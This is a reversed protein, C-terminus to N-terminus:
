EEAVSDILEEIKRIYEPLAFREISIACERMLKEREQNILTFFAETAEEDTEIIKGCREDNSLIRAGGVDTAIFPVGLAVSELLAISFGESKSLLLVVGAQKVIPMPNDQYGLFEVSDSLGEKEVTEVLVQQLNGQGLYYLKVKRKKRVQKLVSLLRQPQKNDDLRGVFLMSDKELKIQTEEEASKRVKDIDIGNYICEIKDIHRPFLEELSRRTIDSIAVIKQVKEFAEDQLRRERDLKKLDSVEGHIWAINKTGKPLLFTPIQYNFSIYVDFDGKIYRDILLEPTHYVQYGKKQNDATPVAKIYPLIKINHKTPEVNIESHEYEIISIDYKSPNLNNVITTLLAEAGGGYTYSWIIFLIKTKKLAKEGLLYRCTKAM